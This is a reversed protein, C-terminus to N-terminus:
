EELLESLEENNSQCPQIKFNMCLNTIEELNRQGM